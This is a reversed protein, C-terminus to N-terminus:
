TGEHCTVPHFKSKNMTHHFYTKQCQTTHYITIMAESPCIVLMKLTSIFWAQLKVLQTSSTVSIPKKWTWIKHAKRQEHGMFHWQKKEQRSYNGNGPCTTEVPLNAWATVSRCDQWSTGQKHSPQLSQESINKHHKFGRWAIIVEQLVIIQTASHIM